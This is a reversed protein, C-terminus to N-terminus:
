KGGEFVQYPQLNLAACIDWLENASVRREGSENLKITAEDQGVKAALQAQNMGALRRLDRLRVGVDREWGDPLVQMFSCSRLVYTQDALTSINSKAKAQIHCVVVALFISRKDFAETAKM